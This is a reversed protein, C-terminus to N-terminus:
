TCEGRAGRRLTAFSPATLMAAVFAFIPRM